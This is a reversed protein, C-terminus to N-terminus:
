GCENMSVGGYSERHSTNYRHGTLVGIGILTALSGLLLFPRNSAINNTWAKGRRSIRLFKGLLLTACISLFGGEVMTSSQDFRFRSPTTKNVALWVLRHEDIAATHRELPPPTNLHRHPFQAQYDRIFEDRLRTTEQDKHDDTSEGVETYRNFDALYQCAAERLRGATIAESYRGMVGGELGAM